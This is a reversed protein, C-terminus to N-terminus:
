EIGLEPELIERYESLEKRNETSIATKLAHGLRDKKEQKLIKEWCSKAHCVYAGRGPENKKYDIKVSGDFTRVLRILTGKAKKQRCFICTREPVRHKITSM